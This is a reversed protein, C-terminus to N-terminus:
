LILNKQRLDRYNFAAMMKEKEEFLGPDRLNDETTGLM